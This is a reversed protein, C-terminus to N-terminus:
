YKSIDFYLKQCNSVECVYTNRFKDLYKDHNYFEHAYDSEEVSQLSKLMELEEETLNEANLEILPDIIGKSM